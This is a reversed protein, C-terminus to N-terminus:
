QCAVESTLDCGREWVGTYSMCLSWGKPRLSQSNKVLESPLGVGLGQIRIGPTLPAPIKRLEWSAESHRWPQSNPVSIYTSTRSWQATSKSTKARSAM